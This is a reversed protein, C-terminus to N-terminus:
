QVGIALVCFITADVTTGFGSQAQVRASSDALSAINETGANSSNLLAYNNDAFNTGWHVTWDGVNNDVLSDVNFSGKVAAASSSADMAFQVWGKVINNGYLTDKTAAMGAALNDSVTVKGTCYINGSVVLRADASAAYTQPIATGVGVQQNQYNVYLPIITRDIVKDWIFKWQNLIDEGSAPQLVDM